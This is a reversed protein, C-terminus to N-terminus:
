CPKQGELGALLLEIEEKPGVHGQQVALTHARQLIDRAAQQNGLALECRGLLILAAMWDAKKSVAAAFHEKAEAYLRADFLAKGLSFRALENEPSEAVMKRFREIRENM